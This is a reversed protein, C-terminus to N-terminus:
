PEDVSRNDAAGVNLARAIPVPSLYPLRHLSGGAALFVASLFSHRTTFTTLWHAHISTVGISLPSSCPPDCKHVSALIPKRIAVLVVASL